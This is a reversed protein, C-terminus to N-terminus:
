GLAEAWSPKYTGESKYNYAYLVLFALMHQTIFCGNWFEISNGELGFVRRPYRSMSGAFLCRYLIYSFFMLNIWIVPIVLTTMRDVVKPESHLTPRPFCFYFLASSVIWSIAFLLTLGLYQEVLEIKLAALSSCFDTATSALRHWRDALRALPNLRIRLTLPWYRTALHVAGVLCLTAFLASAVASTFPRFEFSSVGIFSAWIFCVSALIATSVAFRKRSTMGKQVNEVIPLPRLDVAGAPGAIHRLIEPVLFNALSLAVFTQTWPVNKMGFVKIAQPLAGLIYTAMSLRWIHDVASGSYWEHPEQSGPELLATDSAAASVDGTGPRSLPLLPLDRTHSHKWTTKTPVQTATAIGLDSISLYQPLPVIVGWLGDRSTEMTLDEKEFRGYWVHRAAVKISCGVLLLRTFEVLMQITDLLCILISSKAAYSSGYKLGCVRGTDQIMVALM